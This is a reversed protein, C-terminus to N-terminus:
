DDNYGTITCDGSITVTNDAENYVVDGTSSVYVNGIVLTASDGKYILTATVPAGDNTTLDYYYSDDSYCFISSYRNTEDDSQIYISFYNENMGIITVEATNFDGGGSYTGTVGLIEGDEKINDAILNADVVQATAYDYVNVEATSTITLKGEPVVEGNPVRDIYTEHTLMFLKEEEM